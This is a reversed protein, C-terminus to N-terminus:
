RKRASGASTNRRSLRELVAAREKAIKDKCEGIMEFLVAHRVGRVRMARLMGEFSDLATLRARLAAEVSADQRTNTATATGYVSADRNEIFKNIYDLEVLTLNPDRLQRRWAAIWSRIAEVREDGRLSAQIDLYQTQASEPLGQIWDTPKLQRIDVAAVAPQALNPPAPQTAPAPARPQTVTVPPSAPPPQATAPSPPQLTGPPAPQAASAPMVPQTATAQLGAPDPTPPPQAAAPPTPQPTTPPIPQAASAPTDPQTVTLQPGSSAHSPPPQAAVPPPPQPMSPPAPQAVPANSSATLPTAQRDGSSAVNSSSDERYFTQYAFWGGAPLALLLILPMLKRIAAAFSPEASSTSFVGPQPVAIVRPPSAMVTTKPMRVKVETTTFEAEVSGFAIRDSDELTVMIIKNGRVTTGKASQLDRLVCEKNQRTIVAHHGSLSEDDICIDNDLARGVSIEDGILEATAGQLPGTLFYLKDM